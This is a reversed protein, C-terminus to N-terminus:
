MSYKKTNAKSEVQFGCGQTTEFDHFLRQNGLITIHTNSRVLCIQIFYNMMHSGGEFIM